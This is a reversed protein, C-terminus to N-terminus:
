QQLKNLTQLAREKSDMLKQELIEDTSHIVVHM